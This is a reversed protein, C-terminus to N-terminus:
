QNTTGTPLKGQSPTAFYNVNQLFSTQLIKNKGNRERSYMVTSLDTKRRKVKENETPYDIAYSLLTYIENNTRM